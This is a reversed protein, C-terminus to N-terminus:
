SIRHRRAMFIDDLRKQEDRLWEREYIDKQKNLMDTLMERDQHAVQYVKMQQEREQELVQLRGLASKLQQEASQEDWLMSHLHGGSTTKLLAQERVRHAGDIGASLAEIQHLGRAIELQITQLAREERKEISERVRLVAALPFQFAM